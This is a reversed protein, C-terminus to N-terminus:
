QFLIITTSIVCDCLVINSLSSLLRMCIHHGNVTMLGGVHFNRMLVDKITQNLVENMLFPKQMKFLKNRSM